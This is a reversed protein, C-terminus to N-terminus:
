AEDADLLARRAAYLRRLEAEAAVRAARAEALLRALVADALGGEAALTRQRALDAALATLAAAQRHQDLIRREVAELDVTGGRAAGPHSSADVAVGAWPRSRVARALAHRRCAAPYAARRARRGSRRSEDGVPERKPTLQVMM